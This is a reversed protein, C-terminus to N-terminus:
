CWAERCEIQAVNYLKQLRLQPSFWKRWYRKITATSEITVLRVETWQCLYTISIHPVKSGPCSSHLCITTWLQWAINMQALASKPQVILSLGALVSAAAISTLLKMQFNTLTLTMGESVNVMATRGESWMVRTPPRSRQISGRKPSQIWRAM